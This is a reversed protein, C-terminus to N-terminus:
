KQESGTLRHQPDLAQAIARLIDVKKFPKAVHGQMGADLYERIQHRMSNATLALIPPCKQDSAAKIRNTAELGGMRPMNIDMFILDFPGQACAEVATAGDDVWTIDLDYAELFKGLVMQNTRNDEAVLLRWPRQTLIAEVEAINTQATASPAEATTVIVTARFSAGQGPTSSVEINGQMLRCIQRSISLGLGTGGHTRNVSADLQQFPTFLATMKEKPIGPGTDSVTISLQLGQPTDEIDFVARVSGAETFKIANSILNGAVQRLRVPDSTLWKRAAPRVEVKFDLGKEEAKLAYLKETAHALAVIDIPLTEIELHGAEIKSLDLIDNLVSLLIKGSEVITYAMMNQDDTLTTETLAEAMGLVGNLPTRIEHSMSALFISKAENSAEAARTAAALKATREAVKQELAEAQSQLKQNADWLARSRDDLLREAEERAALQRLYRRRSVSESQINM